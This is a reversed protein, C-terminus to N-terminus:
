LLSLDPSQERGAAYGNTLPEGTPDDAFLRLLALTTALNPEHYGFRLRSITSHNVGTRLAVMRTSMRRAKMAGRLWGAFDGDIIRQPIRISDM